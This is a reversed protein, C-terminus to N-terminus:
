AKLTGANRRGPSATLPKRLTHGMWRCKRRFIQLRPLIIKNLVKGVVSILPIGRYNKCEQRDGKKPLKVIYSENWDPPMEEGKWIKGLL